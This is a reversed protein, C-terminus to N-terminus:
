AKEGEEAQAIATRNEVCRTTDCDAFAETTYCNARARTQHLELATVELAALLMDRQRLLDDLKSM